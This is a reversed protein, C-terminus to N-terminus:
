KKCSPLLNSNFRYITVSYVNGSNFPNRTATKFYKPGSYIEGVCGAFYMSKFSGEHVILFNPKKLGIAPFYREKMGEYGLWDTPLFDHSLFAVSRLGSLVIANEPLIQNAWDAASYEWATSHMVEKRWDVSLVGPFLIFIGFVAGVLTGLGQVLLFRNYLRFKFEEEPLFSFAVATWLIFEYFSRGISQGFLYVALMGTVTIGIVEWFKRNKTRVLFLLLFQFGIITTFKGISEPIILNFPFWFKNERYFHSDNLFEDPLPTFFSTLGMNSVQELNWVGRPLFFFVFSMLGIVLVLKSDRSAKWFAWLGILGGTLIFSLKQQAAGMLLCCILLFRRKDIKKESVTFYLALATIVQPFLQPKPTTVLFFLVPSSLIYLHLFWRKSEDFRNALFCCFAVLSLSQLITGLNIAYLVLGLTNFVEGIGGLSGILWLNTSPWEQHRLLYVPIGWHYNLADANTPPSFSLLVYSIMLSVSLFYFPVHKLNLTRSRWANKISFLLSRNIFLYRIGMVMLCFATPYIINISVKNLTFIYLSQSILVMGLGLAVVVSEQQGLKTLLKQGFLITGCLILIGITIGFLPHFPSVIM